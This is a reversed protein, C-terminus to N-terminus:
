KGARIFYIMLGFLVPVAVAFAADVYQGKVILHTVLYSVCFCLLIISIAALYKFNGKGM